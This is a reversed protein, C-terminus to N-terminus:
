NSPHGTPQGAYRGEWESFPVFYHTATTHKQDLTLGSEQVYRVSGSAEFVVLQLM